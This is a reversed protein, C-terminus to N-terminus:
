AAAYFPNANIVGKYAVTPHTHLVDQAASDTTDKAPYLCLGVFLPMPVNLENVLQEYEAAAAAELPNNIVWEMDGATRLGNFGQERADAIFSRLNSLM